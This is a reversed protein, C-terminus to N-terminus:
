LIAYACYHGHHSISLSEKQKRNKLSFFPVGLDDKNITVSNKSINRIKSYVEVVVDRSLQSQSKCSTNEAKFCNSKLEKVESMTAITHIYNKDFKSTTNFVRDEIIVRGKTKSEFACELRKPNFFREGFQRVYIKYAAEKMSWLLWVTQNQNKSSFILAQENQTFVKELFRPRKWNSDKHAQNLDVIDNGIM